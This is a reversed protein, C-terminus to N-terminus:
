VQTERDAPQLSVYIRVLWTREGREIIQGAM